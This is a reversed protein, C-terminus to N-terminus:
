RAKWTLSPETANEEPSLLTSVPLSRTLLCGAELDEIMLLSQLDVTKEHM